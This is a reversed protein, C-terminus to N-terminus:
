FCQLLNLMAFGNADTATWGFLCDRGLENADRLLERIELYLPDARYLCIWTTPAPPATQICPGRNQIQSNLHYVIMNGSHTTFQAFATGSMLLTFALASALVLRKM